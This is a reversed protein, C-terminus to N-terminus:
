CINFVVYLHFVDFAGFTQAAWLRSKRFWCAVIRCGIVKSWTAFITLVMAAALLALSRRYWRPRTVFIVLKVDIILLFMAASTGPMLEQKINTNTLCGQIAASVM